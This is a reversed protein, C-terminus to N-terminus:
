HTTLTYQHPVLYRLMYQVYQTALNLQM